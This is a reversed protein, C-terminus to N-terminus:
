GLRGCHGRCGRHDRLYCHSYRGYIQGVFNQIVMAELKEQTNRDDYSFDFVITMCRKKPPPPSPSLCPANHDIHFHYIVVVDVIVVTVVVVLHGRHGPLICPCSLLGCHGATRVKKLM